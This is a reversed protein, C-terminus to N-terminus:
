GGHGHFGPHVDLLESLEGAISARINEDVSNGVTRYMKIGAAQLVRASNQGCRPALVADVKQDVLSQAAAIGAGGASDAAANKMYVKNGSETDVTLFYPTRGFSLCIETQDNNENVPLCIKM